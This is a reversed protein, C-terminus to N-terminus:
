IGVLIGKAEAAQAGAPGGVNTRIASRESKWLCLGDGTELETECAEAAWSGTWLPPPGDTRLALLSSPRTGLVAPGRGVVHILYELEHGQRASLVGKAERLAM